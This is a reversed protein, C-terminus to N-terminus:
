KLFFSSIRDANNLFKELALKRASYKEKKDGLATLTYKEGIPIFYPDFGFGPQPNLKSITGKISARSIYVKEGDAYGLSVFYEVEDGEQLSDINWKIDVKIVGNIALVTDEVLFGVETKHIIVEDMTGLIERKDEGDVIEIDPFMSKFERIKNPNSTKIKMGFIYDLM